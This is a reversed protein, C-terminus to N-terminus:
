ILSPHISSSVRITSFSQKLFIVYWLKAGPNKDLLFLPNAPHNEPYDNGSVMPPEFIPPGGGIQKVSHKYNRLGENYRGVLNVTMNNAEKVLLQM